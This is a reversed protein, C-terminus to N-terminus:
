LEHRMPDFGTWSCPLGDNKAVPTLPRVGYWIQRWWSGQPNQSGQEEERALVTLKRTSSHIAALERKCIQLNLWCNTVIKIPHLPLM